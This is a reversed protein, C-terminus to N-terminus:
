KTRGLRRVSGPGARTGHRATGHDVIPQPYTEGLPVGAAMSALPPATWPSHVMGGPLGALEPVWRRVYAGDPDFRLGQAVPDLMRFYAAGDAGTGAVWQWGM